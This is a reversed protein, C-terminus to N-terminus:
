VTEILNKWEEVVKEQKFREATQMANRGMEERKAEHEAMFYMASLLEEESGRSVMLGNVGNEIVDISGECDTSICPFGMMMAELLANSLGEYDSSLVFIEADAIDTHVHASRGELIVTDQLDLSQILDELDPRLVGDGYISLTYEPHDSHFTRFARILMAQNKQKHLRGVTVMRHRTETKRLCTVNVPNPLISCHSRVKESFLDRVVSSQFVVHDAQEYHSQIKDLRFRDPENKSPNNRESLIVKENGRSKVNLANPGYLLSISAVAKQRKKIMRVFWSVPTDITNDSRYRYPVYMLDVDSSLSYPHNVKITYLVVIHYWRSLGSALVTAVREAGGGALAHILIMVTKQAKNPKQFLYHFSPVLKIFNYTFRAIKWLLTKKVWSLYRHDFFLRIRSIM